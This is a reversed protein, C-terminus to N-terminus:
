CIAFLVVIIQAKNIILSYILWGILHEWGNVVRILIQAIELNM